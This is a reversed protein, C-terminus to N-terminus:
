LQRGLNERLRSFVRFLPRPWGAGVPIDPAALTGPEDSKRKPKLHVIYAQIPYRSELEILAPCPGEAFTNFRTTSDPGAMPHGDDDLVVVKKESVLFHWNCRICYYRRAKRRFLASDCLPGIVFEHRLSPGHKPPRPTHSEWLKMLLTLRMKRVMHFASLDFALNLDFGRPLERMM